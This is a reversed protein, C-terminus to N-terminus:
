NIVMHHSMRLEGGLRDNLHQQQQEKHNYGNASSLLDIIGLDVLLCKILILHKPYM